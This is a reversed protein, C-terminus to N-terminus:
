SNMVIHAHHTPSLFVLHLVVVINRTCQGILDCIYILFFVGATAGLLPLYIPFRLLPYQFDLTLTAADIDDM